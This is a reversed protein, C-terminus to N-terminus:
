KDLLIDHHLSDFAKSFDVFVGLTLLKNEINQSLIEKQYLLASEASFGKRFGFQSQSNYSIRM